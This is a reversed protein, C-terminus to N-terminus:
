SGERCRNARELGAIRRAARRTLGLGIVVLALTTPAPTSISTTISLGFRNLEGTDYRAADYVLLQWSGCADRGDFVSLSQQPRFYGTFPPLGNKISVGAEDDFITRDYNAGRFYETLLNYRNLTVQKGSPGQLTLQLDVVSTHTLTITVDLDTITVHDPVVLIARDMWGQGTTGAAPIRLSFASEYSIVQFAAGAPIAAIIMSVIIGFAIVSRNIRV